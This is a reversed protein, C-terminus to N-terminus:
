LENKVGTSQNFHKVIADTSQLMENYNTGIIFDNVMSPFRSGCVSTRGSPNYSVVPKEGIKSPAKLYGVFECKGTLFNLAKESIDPSQKSFPEGNYTVMKTGSHCILVVGVNSNFLKLFPTQFEYNVLSFGKGMKGIEEPHAKEHVSCVYRSCELYLESALDIVLCSHTQKIEEINPMIVQDVVNKFQLWPSIYKGDVTPNILYSEVQVGCAQLAQGGDETFLFFPKRGEEDVMSAAFTTKGSKPLGHYLHNYHFFSKSVPKHAFQEKFQAFSM